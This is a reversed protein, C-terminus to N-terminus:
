KKTLDKELTKRLLKIESVVLQSSLFVVKALEKMNEVIEGNDSNRTGNNMNCIKQLIEDESLTSKEKDKEM